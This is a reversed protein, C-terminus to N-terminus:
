PQLIGYTNLYITVLNSHFLEIVQSILLSPGVGGRVGDYCPTQATVQSIEAPLCSIQEFRIDLINEKLHHSLM